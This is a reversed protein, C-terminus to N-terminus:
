KSVANEYREKIDPMKEKMYALLARDTIERMKDKNVVCYFRLLDLVYVSVLTHTTNAM